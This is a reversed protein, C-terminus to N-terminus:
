GGTGAAARAVPAPAPRTLLERAMAAYNFAAYAVFYPIWRVRGHVLELLVARVMALVPLLLLRPGRLPHKRVMRALGRGDADWQGRAFRYGVDFRHTVVTRKSVGVKLGAQQLRWRLEIDEGSTFRTDFGHELLTNRAIVTAVLGFWAKSRGTRHHHALAEGWYDPTLSVSHLGAQLAAYGEKDMESALATLSGPPLVVDADILAILPASSSEAGLMRAAPLGRGQDSLIRAGHRRAIQVTADTSCGDVVIIERPGEAVISALCDDLLHEANRAPVVVAVDSADAM